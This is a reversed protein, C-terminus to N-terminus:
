WLAVQGPIEAAAAVDLRGGCKCMHADAPHGPPRACVHLHGAHGPWPERCRERRM